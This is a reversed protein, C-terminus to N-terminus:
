QKAAWKLTRWGKRLQVSVNTTTSGIYSSAWTITANSWTITNTGAWLELSVRGVGNTSWDDAMTIICPSNTVLLSVLPGNARTITVTGASTLSTPVRYSDNLLSLGTQVDAFDANTTSIASAPHSDALERGSLSPHASPGYSTGTVGSKRFDTITTVTPPNANRCTVRYLLIGEAYPNFGTLDYPQEATVTGLTASVLRGVVSIYEADDGPVAYIWYNVYQGGGGTPVTALTGIASEYNLKQATANTPAYNTSILSINPLLATQRYVRRINVQSTESHLIDEDIWAGSNAAFAVAQSTIDMGSVWKSGDVLHFRQHTDHDMGLGHTEEGVINTGNTGGSWWVSACQIDKLDWVTQTVKQTGTAQDWSLYWIGSNTGIAPWTVTTANTLIVGNRYVVIGTANSLTLVRTNTVFSFTGVQDLASASFGSPDQTITWQNSLAAYAALGIPESENDAVSYTVENGNTTPTVVLNTTGAVVRATTDNTWSSPANTGLSLNYEGSNPQIATDALAGHAATAFASANSYAATGLGSVDAAPIYGSKYDVSDVGNTGFLLRDMSSIQWVPQNAPLGQTLTIGYPPYSAISAGSNMIISQLNTISRNDANSRIALVDGLGNTGAAAAVQTPINHADNSGAHASLPSMTIWPANTIATYTHSHATPNRDNTLRPDGDYVVSNSAAIWLLESTLYGALAHNGWGYATHAENTYGRALADIAGTVSDGVHWAASDTAGTVADGLHWALADTRNDTLRPDGELIVDNTIGYGALSTPTGTIASWALSTTGTIASWAGNLRGYKNGDAPADSAGAFVYESGGRSWPDDVIQFTGHCPIGAQGNTDILACGWFWTGATYNLNSSSFVAYFTNSTNWETAALSASYNTSAANTYWYFVPTYSSSGDIPRGNSLTTVLYRKHSGRFVKLDPGRDNAFDVTLSQAPGSWSSISIDRTPLSTSATWSIPPAGSAYPDLVFKFPGHSAIAVGGSVIGVGYVYTGANTWNLSSASFTADFIGRSQDVWQCAASSVNLANESLAWYMIPAYGTAQFAYSDTTGNTYLSVRYTKVSSQFATLSRSEPQSFDVKLSETPAGFACISMMCLSAILRKM